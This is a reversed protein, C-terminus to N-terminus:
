SMFDDDTDADFEDDADASGALSEGTRLKQVNRLGASIGQNGNMDYGYFNVTVAGYDGSKISKKTLRELKGTEPDITNGVVQPPYDPGCSANFFYCGKLHEAKKKNDKPNDGDRLILDLSDYDLAKTAKSEAAAARMAADIRKVDPSKKSVICQVSFKPKDSPKPNKPLRPEFVQLFSLRVPHEPATSKKGIAITTSVLTVNTM